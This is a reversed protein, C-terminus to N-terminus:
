RMFPPGIQAGSAQQLATLAGLVHQLTDSDLSGFGEDILLTEIRLRTSRLDALGLALAPQPIGTRAPLSTDKM